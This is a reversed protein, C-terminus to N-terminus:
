KGNYWVQKLNEISVVKKWGLPVGAGIALLCRLFQAVVVTAGGNRDNTTFAFGGKYLLTTPWPPEKPCRSVDNEYLVMRM